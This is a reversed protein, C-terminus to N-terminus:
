TKKTKVTAKKTVTIETGSVEPMIHQRMEHWNDHPTATPVAEASVTVPQVEATQAMASDAGFLLLLTTVLVGVWQWNSVWQAHALARGM